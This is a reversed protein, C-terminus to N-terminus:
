TRKLYYWYFWLWHQYQFLLVTCGKIDMHGKSCLKWMAYVTHFNFSMFLAFEIIENTSGFSTTFHALIISPESFYNQTEIQM